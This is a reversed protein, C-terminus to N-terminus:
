HLLPKIDNMSRMSCDSVFNIPKPLFCFFLSRHLQFFIFSPPSCNPSVKSLHVPPFLLYRVTWKHPESNMFRPMILTQLEWFASVKSLNTVSRISSYSRVHSSMTAMVVSPALMIILNPLSTGQSCM